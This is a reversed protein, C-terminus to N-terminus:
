PRSLSLMGAKESGKLQATKEAKAETDKKAKDAKEQRRIGAAINQVDGLVPGLKVGLDGAIRGWGLVPPGQRLAVIKHLNADKIGGRMGQALGLVISIEGYSLKRYTLGILLADDVGFQRRIKHAVRQRGEDRDASKNLEGAAAELKKEERSREQAFAPIGAACLLFWALLLRTIKNKM